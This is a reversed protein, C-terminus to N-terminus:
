IKMIYKQAKKQLFNYSISDFLFNLVHGIGLSNSDCITV